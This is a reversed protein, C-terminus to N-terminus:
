AISFGESALATTLKRYLHAKSPCQFLVIKNACTHARPFHEPSGSHSVEVCFPPELEAFGGLPLRSCGTAFGLLRRRQEADLDEEVIQWFWEVVESKTTSRSFQRWEDADLCGAGSILTSLELPSIGHCKLLDLPLLDWFGQLLCRLEQRIGGCVYDECLLRVYGLKNDETVRLNAGGQVLEKPSPQQQTPASIFTLRSHLMAEVEAVGGPKLLTEIRHRLFHPDLQQLDDPTIPLGLMHKSMVPGFALPLPREWWVALGLFRGVTFLSQLRRFRQLPNEGAPRPMLTGDAVTVLPGDSVESSSDRIAKAVSEFWDRAVGGTDIAPEDEYRVHMSPALLESVPRHIISALSDALLHSRRVLLQLRSPLMAEGAVQECLRQRRAFAFRGLKHQLLETTCSELDDTADAFRLPTAFDIKLFDESLEARFPHELADELIRQTRRRAQIRATRVASAIAAARLLMWVLAFVALNQELQFSRNKVPGVLFDWFWILPESTVLVAIFTVIVPDLAAAPSPVQHVSGRRRFIGLRVLASRAASTWFACGVLLERIKWWCPQVPIDRNSPVCIFWCCQWPCVLARRMIKFLGMPFWLWATAPTRRGGPGLLPPHSGPWKKCSLMWTIQLNHIESIRVLSFWAMTLVMFGGLLFVVRNNCGFQRMTLMGTLWCGSCLAAVLVCFGYGFDAQLAMGAVEAWKGFSGERVLHIAFLSSLISLLQVDNLALLCRSVIM